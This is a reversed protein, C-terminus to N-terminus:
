RKTVPAPATRATPRPGAAWFIRARTSSPVRGSRTSGPRRTLSLSEPRSATMAPTVSRWRCIATRAWSSLAPPTRATTITTFSTPKRPLPNLRYQKCTELFIKCEADTAKQCIFNRVDSFSVTMHGDASTIEVPKAPSAAQLASGQAARQQMATMRAATPTGTTNASMTPAPAGPRSFAM